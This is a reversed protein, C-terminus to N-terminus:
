GLCGALIRKAAPHQPYNNWIVVVNGIVAETRSLQLRVTYPGVTGNGHKIEYAALRSYLTHQARVATKADREFLLTGNDYVKAPAGHFSFSEIALVPVGFRTVTKKAVAKTLVQHAKFCANTHKETAAAASAALALGVVIAIVLKV